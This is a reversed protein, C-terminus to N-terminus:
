ICWYIILSLIGLVIRVQFIWNYFPMKQPLCPFETMSQTNSSKLSNDSVKNLVIIASQNHLFIAM